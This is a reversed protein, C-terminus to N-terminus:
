KRAATAADAGAAGAAPKNLLAEANIPLVINEKRQLCIPCRWEFPKTLMYGCELCPEHTVETSM